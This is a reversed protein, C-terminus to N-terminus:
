SDTNELNPKDERIGSNPRVDERLNPNPKVNFRSRDLQYGVMDM